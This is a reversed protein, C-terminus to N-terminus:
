RLERRQVAQGLACRGGWSARVGATPVHVHPSSALRRSRMMQGAWDAWSRTSMRLQLEEVM